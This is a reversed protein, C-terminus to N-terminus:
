GAFAHNGNWLGAVCARMRIWSEMPPNLFRYFPDHFAGGRELIPGRAASFEELRSGFRKVEYSKGRIRKLPASVDSPRFWGMEYKPALACALLIEQFQNRRHSETAQRWAATLSSPEDVIRRLAAYVAARTVHVSRNRLLAEVAAYQALRQTDRPHGQSVAAILARADDDITMSLRQFARDVIESAEAATMPPLLFSAFPLGAPILSEASGAGVVVLTADPESVVADVIPKEDVIAVRVGDGLSPVIMNALSTKGVGPRGHIVVHQGRQSAAVLVRVLIETRGAFLERDTVPAAPTFTQVVAIAKAQVAADNLLDPM